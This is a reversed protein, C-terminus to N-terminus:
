RFLKTINKQFYAQIQSVNENLARYMYFKTQPNKKNVFERVKGYPLNTWVLWYNNKIETTISRRLQWTLVPANQIAERRVLQTSQKLSKEITPQIHDYPIDKTWRVKIM